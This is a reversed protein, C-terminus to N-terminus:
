ALVILATRLNKGLRPATQPILDSARVQHDKKGIRHGVLHEEAGQRLQSAPVRDDLM